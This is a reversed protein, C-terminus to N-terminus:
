LGLVKTRVDVAAKSVNFVYSLYDANGNYKKYLEKFEKKPMLLAGAFYNCESEIQDTENRDAKLPLMEKETGEKTHLVYHALEHAITFNDRLPGTFQSLFIIFEREASVIISGDKSKIWNEYDLFKIEGGCSTVLNRINNGM